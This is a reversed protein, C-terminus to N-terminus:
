AARPALAQALRAVVALPEESLQRWTIRIVRFGAAALIQDRRRDREFAVRDGHFDYGDVEVVLRPEPWLFDVTFGCLQANVQPRPLHAATVLERMRREARSRSFGEGLGDRLVRRLRASGKRGPVRNLAQRVQAASVLRRMTAAAVVEELEGEALVAALDVLTRAATTVPLRERVAVDRRDMIEVRHLKV